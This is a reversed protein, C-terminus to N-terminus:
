KLRECNGTFNECVFHPQRLQQLFAFQMFVIWSFVYFTNEETGPFHKGTKHNWPVSMSTSIGEVSVKEIERADV